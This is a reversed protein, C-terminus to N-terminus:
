VEVEILECYQIKEQNFFQRILMGHCVIAVSDYHRYKELAKLFRERVQAATEYCVPSDAPLQGKNEWFLQYAKEVTAVTFNLGDLDLRWEHFFPEVLLPKDQHSVIYSATELARTISSSIVVQVQALRADQAAKKALMRGNETLPALDRGFGAYADPNVAQDLMSYDPESHRVFVIKM